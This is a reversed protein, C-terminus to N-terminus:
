VHPLRSTDTVVVVIEDGLAAMEGRGVPRGNVMIRLPQDQLRVGLRISQGARLRAVEAVPLRLAGLEFTVECQIEGLLDEGSAPTASPDPASGGEFDNSSAMAGELTLTYDHVTARLLARGGSDVLLVPLGRGGANRCARLVDGAALTALDTARLRLAGIQVGLRVPVMGQRRPRLVQLRNFELARWCDAPARVYGRMLPKIDREYVVFGVEVPEDLLSERRGRHLETFELPVGAARELMSIVPHLAHEVLAACTETPVFSEFGDLRPEVQALGDAAIAVSANGWRGVLESAPMIRGSGQWIFIRQDSLMVPDCRLVRNVVDIETARVRRVGALLRLRSLAVPTRPASDTAKPESM